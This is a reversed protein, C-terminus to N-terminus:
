LFAVIIIAISGVVMLGALIGCLIRTANMKVKKQDNKKGM